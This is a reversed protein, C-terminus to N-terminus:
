AIEPLPLVQTLASLVARLEEAGQSRPAAETIGQGRAFATAFGARNGLAASLLPLRRAAIEAEIRARLRGAAPARNMMLMVPRQETAALMLTGEAAWLDPLAPQIPILVLDASRVALKADTDIQPPSDILVVDADRKLRTVEAGVRWGSLDSFVIPAADPRAARLAMWRALSKQPDIDLAAVRCSAALAAALNAVLMTKGAGGKQQAVTVVLAM